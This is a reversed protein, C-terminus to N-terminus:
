RLVPFAPVEDLGMAAFLDAENESGEPPYKEDLLRDRLAVAEESMTRALEMFQDAALVLQEAMELDTM